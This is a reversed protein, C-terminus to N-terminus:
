LRTLCYQVWKVSSSIFEPVSLSKGLTVISVFPLAVDLALHQMGMAAPLSGSELFPTSADWDPSHCRILLIHYHM